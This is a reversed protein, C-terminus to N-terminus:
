AEFGYLAGGAKGSWAAVFLRRGSVVPPAFVPGDIAPGSSWLPKGSSADFALVRDRAGDGYYVVGGAVTPSSVPSSGNSGAAAQWALELSGPGPRFAVLGHTFGAVSPGPDSVLLMQAADSWAALGIFLGYPGPNGTMQITQSPGVGLSDVRYVFLQGTKNPVALEAPCGAPRFLVPTGGFDVDIGHLGPYNQDLVDLGGSLRVVREAYAQSQPFPSEANGTATFVDGTAPDVSVGGFGWIGGGGVPVDNVVVVYWTKTVSAARTDIATIRGFDPPVDCMSALGAYLTDGFLTLAGWEHMHLPDSSISVPWGPQVQGTSLDLAYVDVSPPDEHSAAVYVLGHTRDIVPTGGFGYTDDPTDPCSNKIHGFRDRWIVAGDVANVALLDGHETGVVVLDRPEGDVPVAGAYLPSTITPASGRAM